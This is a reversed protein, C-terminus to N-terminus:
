AMVKGFEKIAKIGASYDYAVGDVYIIPPHGIDLGAMIAASIADEAGILQWGEAPNDMALYSCEIEMGKTRMIEIKQKASECKGCGSKGLIVVKM